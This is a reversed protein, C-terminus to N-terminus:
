TPILFSAHIAIRVPKQLTIRAMHAANRGWEPPKPLQSTDPLNPAGSKLRLHKLNVFDAETKVLHQWTLENWDTVPAGFKNGIDLGFLPEGPQQQIIFFWGPNPQKVEDTTLNTFGLFTIDPSVSGRFAPYRHDSELQSPKRGTADAKVAYIIAGPYRRLLETRILLVLQKDTSVGVANKGLSQRWQDLPPFATNTITNPEWFQRFYTGRQDTPYERWLLERAMEHNLGVLFAEIFRQNTQLLTVSNPPTKDLGALLYDPFLDRLTEYMPQPFEPHAMVPALDDATPLATMRAFLSPRTVERQSLRSLFAQNNIVPPPVIRTINRLPLLRAQHRLAAAIFNGRVPNSSPLGDPLVEVVKGEKFVMFTHASVQQVFEPKLLAFQPGFPTGEPAVSKTTVMGIPRSRTPPPFTRPTPSALKLLQRPQPPALNLVVSPPPPFRRSLAGRPRTLRRLSAAGFEPVAQQNLEVSFTRNNDMATALMRAHAPATIQLLTERIQATPQGSVVVQMANFQNEFLMTRIAQALQRRRQGANEANIAELQEWAATMLEEQEHQIIQTGLGAAVRHRPDLNLENLWFDQQQANVKTQRIAAGGYIPPTVVPPAGSTQAADSLNLINQVEVKYPRLRPDDPLPPQTPLPELVSGLPLVAGQLVPLGFGGRGLDLNRQGAGASLKQPTLKEVLSEFDENQGTSFEWSYYVPVSVAQADQSWASKLKPENNETVTVFAPVVCALYATLPELRRPCLLRSLTRDPRERLAQNMTVTADVAVQAHAWAWSDALDPLEDAVIAPKKIELKPAAAGPNIQLAVGDQKKVVVLVIWPRLRDNADAKLPTFLWPFDPQDFEIAPFMNPEFNTTFLVPTLRIIQRPDIGTVDGPGHLRVTRSVDPAVSTTQNIWLKVDVTANAAISPSEAAQIGAALGQRVWPLFQLALQDPM